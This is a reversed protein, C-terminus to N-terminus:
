LVIIINIVNYLETVSKNLGKCWSPLTKYDLGTSDKWTTFKADAELFREDACRVFLRTRRRAYAHTRPAPASQQPSKSRSQTLTKVGRQPKTTNWKLEQNECYDWRDFLKMCEFARPKLWIFVAPWDKIMWRMWIYVDIYRRYYLVM